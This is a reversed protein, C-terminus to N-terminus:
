PHPAAHGPGPADKTADTLHSLWLTPPDAPEITWTCACIVCLRDMAAEFTESEADFDIPRRLDLDADAVVRGKGVKRVMTWFLKGAPIQRYHGSIRTRRLIWVKPDGKSVVYVYLLGGVVVAAGGLWAWRWRSRGAAPRRENMRAQKARTVQVAKVRARDVWKRIGRQVPKLDKKQLLAESTFVSLLAAGLPAWWTQRVLAVLGNGLGLAVVALISNGVMLVALYVFVAVNRCASLTVGPWRYVEILGFLGGLFVVWLVAQAYSNALVAQVLSTM